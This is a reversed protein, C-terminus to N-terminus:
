MDESDIGKYMPIHKLFKELNIEFYEEIDKKLATELAMFEDKIYSVDFVNYLDEQSWISKLRAKDGGFPILSLIAGDDYEDYELTYYHFEQVENLDNTREKWKYLYKYFELIPFEEEDFYCDDNIYISLKATIDLISSVDKRQKNSIDSADSTFNYHFKVQSSISDM